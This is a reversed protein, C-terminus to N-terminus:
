DKPCLNRLGDETVKFRRIYTREMKNMTQSCSRSEIADQGRLGGSAMMLKAYLVALKRVDCYEKLYSQQDMVQLEAFEFENCSPSGYALVPMLLVALVILVRM